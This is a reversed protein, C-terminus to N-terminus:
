KGNVLTYCWGLIIATDEKDYFSEYANKISITFQEVKDSSDYYCYYIRYEM